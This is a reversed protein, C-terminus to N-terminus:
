SNNKMIFALLVNIDKARRSISLLNTDWRKPHSLIKCKKTRYVNTETETWHMLFVTCGTKHLPFYRFRVRKLDRTGDRLAVLTIYVGPEYQEIWEAEVQDTANYTNNNNNNNNHHNNNNSNSAPNRSKFGNNEAEQSPPAHDPLYKNGMEVVAGTTGNLSRADSDGDNGNSTRVSETFGAFSETPGSTENISSITDMPTIIQNEESTDPNHLMSNSDLGNPLKISDLDYSGPPLREAM